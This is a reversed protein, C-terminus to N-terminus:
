TPKSAGLVITLKEARVAQGREAKECSNVQRSTVKYSGNKSEKAAKEFDQPVRKM